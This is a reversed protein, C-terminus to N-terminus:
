DKKKHFGHHKKFTKALRGQPSDEPCDPNPFPTCRGKKLDKPIWKKKETLFEQGEEGLSELYQEFTRM